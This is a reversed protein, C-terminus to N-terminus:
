KAGGNGIFPTHSMAAMQEDIIITVDPPIRCQAELGIFKQHTMIVVPQSLIVQENVVAQGFDCTSSHVCTHCPSRKGYMGVWSQWHGKCEAPDFGALFGIQLSPNLRQLLARDERCDRRTRKVLWFRRQDNAHAALYCRAASTKECGCFVDIIAREYNKLAFTLLKHTANGDATPEYNNQQRYKQIMLKQYNDVAGLDASSFEAM